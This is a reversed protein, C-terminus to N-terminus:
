TTAFEDLIFNIPQDANRERALYRAQAKGRICQCVAKDNSGFGVRVTVDYPCPRNYNEMGKFCDKKTRTSELYQNDVTLDICEWQRYFANIFGTDYCTRCLNAYGFMTKM